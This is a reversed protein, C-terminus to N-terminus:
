VQLPLDESQNEVLQHLVPIQRVLYKLNVDLFIAPNLKLADGQGCILLCSKLVAPMARGYDSRAADSFDNERNLSGEYLLPWFRGEMPRLFRSQGEKQGECRSGKPSAKM